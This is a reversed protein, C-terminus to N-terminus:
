MQNKFYYLVRNKIFARETKSVGFIYIITVSSLLSVLCVVIFNGWQSIVIGNSLIPLVASAAGILLVTIVTSTLYTWIPFDTQVKMRWLRMGFNCIDLIITVIYVIEPAYGSKLFYWVIPLLIFRSGGVLLQYTKIKGTATLINILPASLIGL